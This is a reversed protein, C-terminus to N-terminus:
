RVRVYRGGPLAKLWGGLELQLVPESLTAVSRGLTEAATDIHTGQERRFVELVERLPSEPQAPAEAQIKWDGQLENFIDSTEHVLKAGCQILRHTGESGPSFISGPVAFVERNQELATRATILSGSRGNAEIIVTGLTLGSIIRNRIPFNYHFPPTGPPFETLILGREAITQFLRKNSRPYVIDIGTGLVAITEGSADLAAQHAAADVGLALGSVIAMGASVLERGLHAAVSLAYPSARRSGVLALAPKQALALNGRYFLALPPDVLQRLLPPYDDDALTVASASLADVQKRLEDNRWPAGGDAGDISLLKRLMAPSANCMTSLPDFAKILLRIRAPSLPLLAYAILRDRLSVDPM